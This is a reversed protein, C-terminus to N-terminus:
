GVGVERLRRKLFRRESENAVLELAQRYSAAAAEREGLRRFLDARTAHLLHYEALDVELGELLNEVARANSLMSPVVVMTRHETPIGEHFDMKPLPRPPM